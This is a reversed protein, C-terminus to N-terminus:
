KKLENIMENFYWKKYFDNFDNMQKSLVGLMGGEWVSYAAEGNTNILNEPFTRMTYMPNQEGFDNGLQGFYDGKLIFKRIGKYELEVKAFKKDKLISATQLFVRFVDAPSKDESVNKLNFVLTNTLVYNKYHVNISVGENRSDENIKSTTPYEITAYNYLYIGCIIVLIIGFFWFLKKMTILKLTNHLVLINFFTNRVTERLFLYYFYKIFQLAGTFTFFFGEIVLLYYTM